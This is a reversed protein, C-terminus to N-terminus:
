KSQLVMPRLTPVSLNQGCLNALHAHTAAEASGDLFTSPSKMGSEGGVCVSSAQPYYLSVTLLLQLHENAILASHNGAIAAHQEPGLM